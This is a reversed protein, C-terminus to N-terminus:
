IRYSNAVQTLWYRAETETQQYSHARQLLQRATDLEGNQFYLIGLKLVTHPDDPHLHMLQTYTKIADLYRTQQEYIWSLDALAAQMWVVAEPSYDRAKRFCETAQHSHGQQHLRLGKLYYAKAIWHARDSGVQARLFHNIAQEWRQQYYLAKGLFYHYNRKGRDYHGGLALFPLATQYNNTQAFLKGLAHNVQMYAPDYVIAQKYSEIARSTDSRHEWIQGIGIWIEARLDSSHKLCYDLIVQASDYEQHHILFYAEGIQFGNDFGEKIRSRYFHIEALHWARKQQYARGKYFSAVALLSDQDVVQDLIDISREIAGLKYLLKGLELRHADQCGPVKLLSDYTHLAQDYQQIGQYRQAVQFLSDAHSKDREAQSPVYVTEPAAAQTVIPQRPARRLPEDSIDITEEAPRAPAQKQSESWELLKKKYFDREEKLKIIERLLEKNRQQLQSEAPAAQERPRPKTTTSTTTRRRRTQASLFLSEQLLLLFCSIVVVACKFISQNTKIPM